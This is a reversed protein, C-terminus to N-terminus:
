SVQFPVAVGGVAVADHADVELVALGHVVDGALGGLHGDHLVVVDAAAGLVAEAGRPQAKVGLAAQKHRTVRGALDINNITALHTGVLCSYTPPTAM